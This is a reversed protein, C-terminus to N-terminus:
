EIEQRSGLLRKRVGRAQRRGGRRATALDDLPMANLESISVSPVEEYVGAMAGSLKEALADPDACDGDWRCVWGRVEALVADWANSVLEFIAAKFEM